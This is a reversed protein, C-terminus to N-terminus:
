RASSAGDGVRVLRATVDGEYAVNYVLCVFLSYDGAALAARATTPDSGMGASLLVPKGGYNPTQGARCVALFPARSGDPEREVSLEYEGAELAATASALRYATGSNEAEGKVHVTAPVDTATFTM